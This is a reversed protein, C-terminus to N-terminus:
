SNHPKRKTAGARAGGLERAAARRPSGSACPSRTAATRSSASRAWSSLSQVDESMERLLEALGKVEAMSEPERRQTKPTPLEDPDCDIVRKFGKANRQDLTGAAGVSVPWIRM